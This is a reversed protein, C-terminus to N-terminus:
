TFFSDYALLDDAPNVIRSILMRPNQLNQVLKLFPETLDGFFDRESRMAGDTAGATSVDAVSTATGSLQEEETLAFKITGIRFAAFIENIKKYIIEKIEEMQGDSLFKRLYINLIFDVYANADTNFVSIKPFSTQIAIDALSRCVAFGGLKLYASEVEKVEPVKFAEIPLYLGSVGFIGNALEKGVDTEVWAPGLVRTRFENKVTLYSRIIEKQAAEIQPSPHNPIEIGTELKSPMSEMLKATLEMWTKAEESQVFRPNLQSFFLDPEGPLGQTKWIERNIPTFGDEIDYIILFGRSSQFLFILLSDGSGFINREEKKKYIANLKLEHGGVSAIGCDLYAGLANTQELFPMLVSIHCDGINFNEKGLYGMEARGVPRNETEKPM